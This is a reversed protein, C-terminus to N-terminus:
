KWKCIFPKKFSIDEDLELHKEGYIIECFLPTLCIPEKGNLKVWFAQM